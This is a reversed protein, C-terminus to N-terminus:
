DPPEKGAKKSPPPAPQTGSTSCGCGNYISQLFNKAPASYGSFGPCLLACNANRRAQAQPSLGQDQDQDQTTETKVKSKPKPKSKSKKGQKSPGRKQTTQNRPAKANPLGFTFFGGVVFIGLLGLLGWRTKSSKKNM